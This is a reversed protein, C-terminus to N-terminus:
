IESLQGHCCGLKIERYRTSWWLLYGRKWLKGVGRYFDKKDIFRDLDDKLEKKLVPDMAFTDFTSPHNLNAGKFNRGLSFIRQRTKTAVFEWELDMGEFTDVIKQGKGTILSFETEGPHKFINLESAQYMENTIFGLTENIILTLQSSKDGFLGELCSTLKEQLKKPVLQNAITQLERIITRVLMASAALATYTSLVSSTSPKRVQSFM